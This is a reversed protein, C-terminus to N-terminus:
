AARRQIKFFRREGILTVGDVYGDQLNFEVTLKAAVGPKALPELLGEVVRWASCLADM